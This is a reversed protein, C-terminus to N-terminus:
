LCARGAHWTSSTPRTPTGLYKCSGYNGIANFRGTAYGVCNPLVNLNKERRQPNGLICPNYGGTKITNYYPDGAAPIVLQPSFTAM